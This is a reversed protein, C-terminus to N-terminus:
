DLHQCTCYALLALCIVLLLTTRPMYYLVISAGILECTVPGWCVVCRHSADLADLSPSPSLTSATREALKPELQLQPTKLRAQM